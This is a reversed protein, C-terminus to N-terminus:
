RLYIYDIIIVSVFSAELNRIQRCCPCAAYGQYNLQDKELLALVIRSTPLDLADKLNDIKFKCQPCDICGTKSIQLM